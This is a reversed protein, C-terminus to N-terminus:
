KGNKEAEAREEYRKWVRKCYQEIKEERNLNYMSGLLLREGISYTYVPSDGIDLTLLEMGNESFLNKLDEYFVEAMQELTPVIDKFKQLENLRIGRYQSFYEQLLKENNLFDSQRDQRRIAYMGVRFTHAHMKAPDNIVINHMANFTVRYSYAEHKESM